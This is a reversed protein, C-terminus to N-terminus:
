NKGLALADKFARTYGKRAQGSILEFPLEKQLRELVEKTGDTSGDEAIILVSHPM